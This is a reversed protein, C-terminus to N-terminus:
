DSALDQEQWQQVELFLFLRNCNWKTIQAYTSPNTAGGVAHNNSATKSSGSHISVNLIEVFL